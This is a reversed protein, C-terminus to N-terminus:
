EEMGGEDQRGWQGDMGDEKMLEDIDRKGRIPEESRSQRRLRPGMRRSAFGEEPQRYSLSFRDIQWNLRAIEAQQEEVHRRADDLQM